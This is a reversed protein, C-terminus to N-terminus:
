IELARKRACSKCLWVPTDDHHIDSAYPCPEFTVNDTTGCDECATATVRDFKLVHIVKDSERDTLVTVGVGKRWGLNRLHRAAALAEDGSDFTKTIWTDLPWSLFDRGLETTAGTPRGRQKATPPLTNSMTVTM